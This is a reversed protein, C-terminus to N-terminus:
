RSRVPIPVDPAPIALASAAIRAWGQAPKLSAGTGRVTARRDVAFWASQIRNTEPDVLNFQSGIVRVPDGVVLFHVGARKARVVASRPRAEVVAVPVVGMLALTEREDELDRLEEDSPAFVILAHAQDLIDRLRRTRNDVGVWNFDPARDGVHVPANPPDPLRTGLRSRPPPNELSRGTRDAGDGVTTAVVILAALASGTFKM